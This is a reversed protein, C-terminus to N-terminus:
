QYVFEVRRNKQWADENHQQMMPKEEGFSIVKIRSSLDYLSLIEKVNLSRNEGLALNYERTGREDAHGELRLKLTPNNRMFNAHKIIQKISTKDIETGDDSFYLIFNVDTERFSTVIFSETISPISTIRDDIRLSTFSSKDTEFVNEQVNEMRDKITVVSSNPLVKRYLDDGSLCSSLLVVVLLSILKLM